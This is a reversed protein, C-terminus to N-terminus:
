HTAVGTVVHGGHNPSHWFIIARWTIRAWSFYKFSHSYHLSPQFVRPLPFHVEAIFSKCVELFSKWPIEMSKRISLNRLKVTSCYKNKRMTESLNGAIKARAKLRVQGLMLSWLCGAVVDNEFNVIGGGSNRMQDFISECVDIANCNLHQFSVVHSLSANRHRLSDGNSHRSAKRVQRVWILTFFHRCRPAIM